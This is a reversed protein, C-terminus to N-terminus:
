LRRWRKLKAFSCVRMSGELFSCQIGKNLFARQKILRKSLHLFGLSLSFLLTCCCPRCARQARLKKVSPCFLWAVPLLSLLRSALRAWPRRAKQTAWLSSNRLKEVLSVLIVSGARGYGFGSYHSLFKILQLQNCLVDFEQM